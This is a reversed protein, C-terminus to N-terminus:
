KKNKKNEEKESVFMPILFLLIVLVFLVIGIYFLIKNAIIMSLGIVIAVIFFYINLDKWFHKVNLEDASFISVLISLVSISVTAIGLYLNELWVTIVMLALTIFLLINSAIKLSSKITNDKM